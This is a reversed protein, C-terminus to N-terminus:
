NGGSIALYVKKASLYTTSSSADRKVHVTVVYHGPELTLAGSAPHTLQRTYAFEMDLTTSPSPFDLVRPADAENDLNPGKVVIKVNLKQNAVPQSNPQYNMQADILSLEFKVQQSKSVLFITEFIMEWQNVNLSLNDLQKVLQGAM